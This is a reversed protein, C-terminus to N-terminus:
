RMHGVEKSFLEETFLELDLKKSFLEESFLQFYSVVLAKALWQDGNSGCDVMRLPQQHLCHAGDSKKMKGKTGVFKIIM